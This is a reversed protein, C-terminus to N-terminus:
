SIMKKILENIEKQTYIFNLLDCLDDSYVIRFKSYKTGGDCTDCESVYKCNIYMFWKNNDKDYIEIIFRFKVYVKVSLRRRCKPFSYKEPSEVEKKHEYLVEYKYRKLYFDYEDEFVFKNTRCSCNYTGTVNKIRYRSYQHYHNGYIEDDSLIIHKDKNKLLLAVLEDTM